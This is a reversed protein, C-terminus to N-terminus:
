ATNVTALLSDVSSESWYGTAKDRFYLASDNWYILYSGFQYVQKGSEKYGPRPSFDLRLETSERTLVDRLSLAGQAIESNAPLRSNASPPRGISDPVIQRLFVNVFDIMQRAPNGFYCFPRLRFVVERLFQFVEKFQGRSENLRRSISAAADKLITESLILGIAEVPLIISWSSFELDTSVSNRRYVFEKCFLRLTLRWARSGLIGRWPLLLDPKKTEALKAILNDEAWKQSTPFELLPPLWQLLTGPDAIAVAEALSACEQPGMLEAGLARAVRIAHATGPASWDIKKICNSAASRVVEALDDQLLVLDTLIGCSELLAEMGHEVIEHTLLDICLSEIVTEVDLSFWLPDTDFQDRAVSVESALDRLSLARAMTEVVESIRLLSSPTERIHFVRAYSLRATRIVSEQHSMAAQLAQRLPEYADIEPQVLSDGVSNSLGARWHMEDPHVDTPVRQSADDGLGRGNSPASVAEVPHSIGEGSKGLGGGSYGMKNLLTFGTGYMHSLHSKDLADRKGQM